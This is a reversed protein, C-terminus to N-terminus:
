AVKPTARAGAHAYRQGGPLTFFVTPNWREDAELRSVFLEEAPDVPILTHHEPPQDLLEALGGTLSVTSSLVGDGAAIEMRVSAREYVGVYPALDVGVPQAPPEVPAPMTVGALEALLEGFLDDYLEATHGGNTMLAVAVNADPVVRLFSSQGLTGGDHGFLRRGGWDFLMWGLGWHVGGGLVWKNPVAVQPVRMSAVSEESLLRSGDPARGGDLHLRAFALLETPTSCLNAGAPLGSHFMEWAPAPRPEEGPRAIHGMATRFRLAEEPLTVTHTLGLPEILRERLAAHWPRGTLKEVLRGLVIFGTNCYSMTAGLPHNQRLDACAEVYRALADDGRGTDVFYDGDIGSTHTLLHRVTVQRTVEPDAVKFEPLHRVVPDDLSLLGEEVLRLTVTAALVKGISGTQFLSDTTAEVGTALNLLGYAATHIDGDALVAVSAGVVKHKAALEDLRGRLGDLTGSAM